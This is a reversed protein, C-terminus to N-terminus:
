KSRGSIVMAIIGVISLMLMVVGSVVFKITEQDM